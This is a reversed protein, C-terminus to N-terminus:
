KRGAAFAFYPRPWFFGIARATWRLLLYFFDSGRILAANKNM